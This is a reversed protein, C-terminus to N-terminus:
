FPNHTVTSEKDDVFVAGFEAEAASYVVHKIVTTHCLLPGNYLPTNSSDTKKGIYFYGGIRLYAKPESLYSADTHIKLQM